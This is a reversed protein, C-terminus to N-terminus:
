LIPPINPPSASAQPHTGPERVVLRVPGSRAARMKTTRSAWAGSQSDAAGGPIASGPTAIVWTRSAMLASTQRDCKKVLMQGRPLSLGRRSMLLSWSSITALDFAFDWFDGRGFSTSIPCRIRACRSLRLMLWVSNASRSPTVNWCTCFYSFPTFRTPAPRSSCIASASPTDRRKEEIASAIADALCVRFCDIGADSQKPAMARQPHEFGVISHAGLMSLREHRDALDKRSFCLRGFLGIPPRLGHERSSCTPWSCGLCASSRM